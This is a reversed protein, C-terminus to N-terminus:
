SALCHELLFLFALSWSNQKPPLQFSQSCTRRLAHQASEPAHREGGLLVQGESSTELPPDPGVPVGVM